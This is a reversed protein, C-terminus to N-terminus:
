RDETGYKTGDESKEVFVDLPEAYTCDWLPHGNFATCWLYSYGCGEM